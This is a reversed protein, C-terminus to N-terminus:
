GYFGPAYSYELYFDISVMSVATTLGAAGACPRDRTYHVHICAPCVRARM